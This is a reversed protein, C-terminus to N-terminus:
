LREQMQSIAMLRNYHKKDKLTKGKKGNRVFAATAKELDRITKSRKTALLSWM